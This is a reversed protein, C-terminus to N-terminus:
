QTLSSRDEVSKEAVFVMQHCRVPDIRKGVPQMFRPLPCLGFGFGAVDFFVIARLSRAVSQLQRRDSTPAAPQRGKDLGYGTPRPFRSRVPDNALSASREEGGGVSTRLLITV